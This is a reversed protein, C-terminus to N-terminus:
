VAQAKDFEVNIVEPKLLKQLRITTLAASAPQTEQRTRLVSTFANFLSWGTPKRFAEHVPHRWEHILDPLIRAGILGQEYSRLIISDAEQPSPEWAQLQHVWEAASAQYSPLAAVASALAAIYREQGFRTHKRAIVVESTFALNACVMVRQGACFGIPFSKDQSNRIGVALTIGETIPTALDLTGFFRDGHHSVALRAKAIEYGAGKLTECVADYVEVHKVPHWTSTPPPTEILALQDRTVENGILISEAM